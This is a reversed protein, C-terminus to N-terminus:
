KSKNDWVVVGVDDRMDKPFETDVFIDPKKENWHWQWKQNWRGVAKDALEDASMVLIQREDELRDEEVESDFLFMDTFGDSCLVCRVDDGEDFYEIHIEPEYGTVDNQGLVQTPAITTGDEFITYEVYKSRMKAGSVTYGIPNPMKHFIVPRSALRKRESESETNHETSKYVLTGNKYVLVQSDGISLTEVRDSYGRMMLLTSGSQNGYTHRKGRVIDLLTKCPDDTAMVGEWDQGRMLDIFKNSGHGDLLVAWDFGECKGFAVFDQGKGLNRTVGNLYSGKIDGINNTMKIECDFAAM